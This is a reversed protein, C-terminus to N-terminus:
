IWVWRTLLPGRMERWVVGILIMDSGYKAQMREAMRFEEENQAVTGTMIGIKFAPKEPDTIPPTRPKCAALSFVLSLVVLAVLIRKFM